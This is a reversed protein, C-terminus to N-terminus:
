QDGKRASDRVVAAVKLLDSTLTLGDGEANARNIEFRVRDGQLVFQIMGGRQSFERIDSVTLVSAQNLAALISDLKTEQATSLFLIHCSAAAQALAVRKIAVLKGGISEGALTSQLVTGFPDNGLVCITFAGGRSAAADTPWKVFKGFNYVYAAKVQYESPKTQQARVNGSVLMGLGILLLVRARAISKIRGPGIRKVSQTTRALICDHNRSVQM